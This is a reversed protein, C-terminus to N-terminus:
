RQYQQLGSMYMDGVFYNKGRHKCQNTVLPRFYGGSDCALLRLGNREAGLQFILLFACLEYAAHM